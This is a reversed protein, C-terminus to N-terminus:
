GTSTICDIFDDLNQQLRLSMGLSKRSFFVIEEGRCYFSGVLARALRCVETLNENPVLGDEGRQQAWQHWVIHDAPSKDDTDFKEAWWSAYRFFDQYGAYGWGVSVNFEFTVPENLTFDEGKLVFWYDSLWPLEDLQQMDEATKPTFVGELVGTKQTEQLADANLLVYPLNM